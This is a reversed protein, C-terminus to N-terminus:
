RQDCARLDALLGDRERTDVALGWATKIAVVRVAYRCAARRDAPAWTGADQDGKGANVSRSTLVLARPDNAYRERRDDDWRAAGSRWAEALAVVHDVQVQDARAKEFRLVAGTYEDTGTGSVVVCRDRRRVERLDRALVDDRTSCGNRDVDAWRRGFAERRYSAADREPRVPLRTLAARASRPDTVAAGASPMAGPDDLPDRGAPGADVTCGALLAV